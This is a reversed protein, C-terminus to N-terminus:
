STVRAAYSESSLIDRVADLSPYAGAAWTSREAATPVRGLMLYAASLPDVTRTTRRRNESSESFQAVLGGRTLARTDIRKTWYALGSPDAERGFVNRYLQAVFARNGLKGYRRQFESSAAFREATVALRQGADRRGIWYGLGSPDAGRLFFAEYLRAVPRVSREARSTPLDMWHLPILAPAVDGGAVALSAEDILASSIGPALDNVQRDIFADVTPFPAVFALTTTNAAAAAGGRNAPTIRVRTLDGPDVALDLDIPSLGDVVPHSTTVTPLTGSRVEVRYEDPGSEGFSADWDCGDVRLHATTRTVASLAAGAIACTPPSKPDAAVTGTRIRAQLSVGGASTCCAVEEAYAVEGGPVDRLDAWGRSEYEYSGPGRTVPRYALLASAGQATFAQLFSVQALGTMSSVSAGAAGVWVQGEDDVLANSVQDIRGWPDAPPTTTWELAGDDARRQVILPSGIIPLCLTAFSGDTSSPALAVDADDACGTVDLDLDIPGGAPWGVVRDGSTLLLLRGSGDVARGVVTEGSLDPFGRDSGDPAWWDLTGDQGRLLVSGDRLVGTVWQDDPVAVPQAVQAGTADHRTLWRDCPTEWSHCTDAAWTASITGDDDVGRVSPQLGSAPPALVLKRVGVVGTAYPGDYTGWGADPTGDALSHAIVLDISGAFSISNLIGGLAYQSGDGGVWTFVPGQAYLSPIDSSANSPAAAATPSGANSRSDAGAPRVGFSGAAVLAAAVAIAATRTRRHEM